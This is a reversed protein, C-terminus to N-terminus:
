SRGRASTTMHRNISYKPGSVRKLENITSGLCESIRWLTCLSSRSSGSFPSPKPMPQYAPSCLTSGATNREMVGAHFL